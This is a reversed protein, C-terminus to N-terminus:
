DEEPFRDVWEKVLHIGKPEPATKKARIFRNPTRIIGAAENRKTYKTYRGFKSELFSQHAPDM